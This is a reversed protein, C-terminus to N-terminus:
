HCLGTPRSTQPRKTQLIRGHASTPLSIPDRTVVQEHGPRVVNDASFSKRLLLVYGARQIGEEVPIVVPAVGQPFRNLGGGGVVPCFEGGFPLTATLLVGEVHAQHGNWKKAKGVM